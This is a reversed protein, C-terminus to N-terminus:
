KMGVWTRIQYSLRSVATSSRSVATSGKVRPRNGVLELALVLTLGHQVQDCASGIAPIQSFWDTMQSNLLRTQTSCIPPALLIPEPLLKPSLLSVEEPRADSPFGLPGAGASGLRQLPSKTINVTAGSSSETRVFALVASSSTPLCPKRNSRVSVSSAM